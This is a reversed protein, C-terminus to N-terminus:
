IDAEMNLFSLYSLHTPYSGKGDHRLFMGVREKSKFFAIAEEFTLLTEPFDTAEMNLISSLSVTIEPFDNNVIGNCRSGENELIFIYCEETQYITVIKELLDELGNL